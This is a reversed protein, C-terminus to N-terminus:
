SSSLIEPKNGFHKSQNFRQQTELSYISCLLSIIYFSVIPGYIGLGVVSEILLPIFFLSFIRRDLMRIKVFIMFFLIMAAPVGLEGVFSIISSETVQVSELMWVEQSTYGVSSLAGFGLGWPQRIIEVLGQWMLEIRSANSTDNILDFISNVRFLLIEILGPAVMFTITLFGLSYLILKIGRSRSYWLLIVSYFFMVPLIGRRSLSFAISMLACFICLTYIIKNSNMSLYQAALFQILAIGALMLSSGTFSTNRLTFNGATNTFEIAYIQFLDAIGLLHVAYFYIGGLFVPISSISIVRLAFESRDKIDNLNKDIFFSFIALPQLFYIFVLNLFNDNLNQNFLLTSFFSFFIVSTFLYIDKSSVVRSLNLFIILLLLGSIIPYVDFAYVSEFVHKLLYLLTIIVYLIKM